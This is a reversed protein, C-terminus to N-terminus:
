NSCSCAKHNLNIGCVPCLGKCLNTCLIKFPIEIILIELLIKRLDVSDELDSFYIIEYKENDTVGLDNSLLLNTKIKNKNCFPELCRDCDYLVNNIIHGFIEFGHNVIKSTFNCILKNDVLAIGFGDVDNIDIEFLKNKFGTLLDSRLVIM